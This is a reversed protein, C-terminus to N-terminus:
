KPEALPLRSCFSRKVALGILIRSIKEFADRMTKRTNMKKANSKRADFSQASQWVNLKARYVDTHTHSHTTQFSTQHRLGFLLCEGNLLRIDFFLAVSLQRLASFSVCRPKGVIYPLM